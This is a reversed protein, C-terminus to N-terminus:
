DGFIQKVSNVTAKGDAFYDIWFQIHERTQLMDTEPRSIYFPTVDVGLLSTKIRAYYSTTKFDRYSTLPQTYQSYVGPVHQLFDSFVLLHKEVTDYEAKGFNELSITRIGEFILSQDGDSESVVEALAQTLRDAFNRQWREEILRPNAYLESMEAGRGPNCMALRPTAIDSPSRGLAYVEFRGFRPITDRIRNIENFIQIQEGQSLSETIDILVINVSPAPQDTRCLSEEDTAVFNKKGFWYGSVLLGALVVVITFPVLPNSQKQGYRKQDTSKNGSKTVPM